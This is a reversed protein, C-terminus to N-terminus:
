ISTRHLLKPTLRSPPTGKLLFDRAEFFAPDLTSPDGEAQLDALWAFVARCQKVGAAEMLVIAGPDVQPVRRAVEGAAAARCIYVLWSVTGYENTEWLDLAFLQGPSYTEIETTLGIRDTIKRSTVPRGFLRRYNRVGDRYESTVYTIPAQMAAATSQM